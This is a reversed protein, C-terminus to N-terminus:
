VFNLFLPADGQANTNTIDTLPPGLNMRGKRQSRCSRNHKLYYENNNGIWQYQVSHIFPQRKLHIDRQDM